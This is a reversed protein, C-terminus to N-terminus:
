LQFIDAQESHMMIPQKHLPVLNKISSVKKRRTWFVIRMIKHKKRGGQRSRLPVSGRATPGKRLKEAKPVLYLLTKLPLIGQFITPVAGPVLKRIICESVYNSQLFHKSCVTASVSKDNIILHERYINKNWRSCQQENVQFQNFSVRLTKGSRSKCIACLVGNPCQGFRSAGSVWVSVQLAYLFTRWIAPFAQNM